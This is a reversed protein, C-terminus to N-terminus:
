GMQAVDEGLQLVHPIRAAEVFEECARGLGAM